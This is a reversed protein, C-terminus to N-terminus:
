NLMKRAGPTFQGQNDFSKHELGETRVLVNYM